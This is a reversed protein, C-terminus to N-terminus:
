IKQKKNNRQEEEYVQNIITQELQDGININFNTIQVSEKIELSNESMRSM